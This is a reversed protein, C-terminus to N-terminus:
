GGVVVVVEVDVEVVEVEVEVEVVEVELAVPVTDPEKEDLLVLEEDELAAAVLEAAGMGYMFATRTDDNWVNVVPTKM